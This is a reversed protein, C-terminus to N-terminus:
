DGAKLWTWASERDKFIRMHIQPHNTLTQYMRAFGMQLPRTAVIASKIRNKLRMTMRVAAFEQIAGFDLEANEMASLDTLFDPSVGGGAEAKKSAEALNQLDRIGVSGQFTVCFVGDVTTVELAM